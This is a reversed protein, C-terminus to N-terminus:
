LVATASPLGFRLRADKASGTSSSFRARTSASNSQQSRRVGSNKRLADQLNRARLNEFVEFLQERDPRDQDLLSAAYADYVNRKNGLFDSRLTSAGLGGRLSEIIRIARGYALAAAHKRGAANEAQGIGYEASWQEEAAGLETSIALARTYEDRAEATRGLRLLAEGRFLRGLMSQRRNGTKEALPLAESFPSLAREPAKYDIALVIGVNHLVHIEGDSHAANRFLRRAKEYADLAKVPDGMRRYLTGVNSGLQALESPQFASASAPARQYYGLAKENQGLQEYLVALNALALQRGDLGSAGAAEAKEFATQYRQLANLYRGQFFHVSGINGMRVSGAVADHEADALEFARQFAALALTYAGEYLHAQGTLNWAVGERKGDHISNAIAAADRAAAIGRGYAGAAVATQATEILVTTAVDRPASTRIAPLLREYDEFSLRADGRARSARAEALQQETSQAFLAGVLLLAAACCRCGADM